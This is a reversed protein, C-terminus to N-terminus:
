TKYYHRHGTNGVASEVCIWLRNQLRMGHQYGQTTSNDSAMIIHIAASGGSAMSINLDMNGSLSMEPNTNIYSPDKKVYATLAALPTWTSIWPMQQNQFVHPHGNYTIDGTAGESQLHFSAVKAITSIVTSESNLFFSM